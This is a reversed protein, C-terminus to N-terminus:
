AAGKKPWELCNYIFGVWVELLFDERLHKIVLSNPLRDRVVLDACAPPLV